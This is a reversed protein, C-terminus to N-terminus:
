VGVFLTQLTISYDGQGDTRADCFRTWPMVEFTNFSAVEFKMCLYTVSHLLATYLFWIEIGNM